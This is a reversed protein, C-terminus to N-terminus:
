RVMPPLHRRNIENLKRAFEPNKSMRNIEDLLSVKEIRMARGLRRREGENFTDPSVILEETVAKMNGSRDRQWDNFLSILAGRPIATVGDTLM